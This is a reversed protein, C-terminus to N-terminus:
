KFVLKKCNLNNNAQVTCYYIGVPLSEPKWTYKYSAPKLEAHVLKCVNQGLCNYIDVAVDTKESITFSITTTTNFPNPSISFGSLDSFENSKITLPEQEKLWLYMGEVDEDRYDHGGTFTVFEINNNGAQQLFSYAQQNISLLADSTGCVFYVPTNRLNHAVDTNVYSYNNYWLAGSHIGLGAWVETSKQGIRWAGYGGMSHGCLFKRGPDITVIKELENICEWIDTESIGEYWFNGRGWPSLLYGDEFAFTESPGNIFPYTMYNIADDAVDWLGHLQVYLPYKKNEDWNIPVKLQSFSIQGDTPSQWALVFSRKRDLYSQLERPNAASEDDIFEIYTSELWQIELSSLTTKANIVKLMSECSLKFLFNDTRSSIAQLTDKLATVYSTESFIKQQSNSQAKSTLVTLAFILMPLTFKLKM